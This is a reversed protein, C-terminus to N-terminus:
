EDEGVAKDDIELEEREARKALHALVLGTLDEVIEDDARNGLNRAFPENHEYSWKAEFMADVGKETDWWLRSRIPPPVKDLEIQILSEVHHLLMSEGVSAGNLVHAQYDAWLSAHDDTMGARGRKLTEAVRDSIVQILENM